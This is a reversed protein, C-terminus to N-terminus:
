QVQFPFKDKPNMEPLGDPKLNRMFNVWFCSLQLGRSYESHNLRVIKLGWNEDLLAVLLRDM